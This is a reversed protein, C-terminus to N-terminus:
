GTERKRAQFEETKPSSDRPPSYSSGSSHTHCMVTHSVREWPGGVRGYSCFEVQTAVALM